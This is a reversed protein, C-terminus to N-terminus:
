QKHGVFMLDQTYVRFGIDAGEALLALSLGVRIVQWLVWRLTSVLGHVVPGHELIAMAELGVATCIQVISEPTFSLEHTIDAYRVRASFLSKSNPVVALLIGGSKLSAVVADLMAFLEDRTMHELINQANIVEYTNPYGQLYSLADAVEVQTMGINRAAEIQQRSIDIGKINAYGELKLFYLFAGSGCAIDLIPAQRDAPLFHAWRQRYQRAQGVLSMTPRRNLSSSSIVNYDGYIRDRVNDKPHMVHNM